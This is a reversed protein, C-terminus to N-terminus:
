YPSWCQQRPGYYPQFTNDWARYSRYRNYCWRAHASSVSRRYYRPAYYRPAYYRPQYYYPSSYYSGPWDYLGFPVGFSFSLSPGYFNGYHGYHGYRGYYPRRYRWGNNWNGNWHRGGGWGHGGWSHGGRYIQRVFIPNSNANAEVAPSVAMGAPGAYLEGPLCGIVSLAVLGSRALSRMKPTM